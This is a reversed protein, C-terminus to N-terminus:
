MHKLFTDDQIALFKKQDFTRREGLATAIGAVSRPNSELIDLKPRSTSDLSQKSLPVFKNTNDASKTSQFGFGAKKAAGTKETLADRQRQAYDSFFEEYNQFAAVFFRLFAGRIEMANFDIAGPPLQHAQAIDPQFNYAPDLAYRRTAFYAANSQTRTSADLSCAAPHHHASVHQYKQDKAPKPAPTSYFGRLGFGGRKSGAV